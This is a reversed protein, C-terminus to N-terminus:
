KKVMEPYERKLAALKPLDMHSIYGDNPHKVAYHQHYDEAPYFQKLPTIETVIPKKFVHADNLEKIYAEATEKQAPTAYFIASRYQPGIDNEQRNKTTPDHAVSFFVKLLQGLSVKTPDYTVQVSEAHGTTGESVTEYHATAKNGGAYGAVASTVGTMNEFVLEIGWFCGGAVVLTDQPTGAPALRDNTPNPFASSAAGATLSLVLLFSLILNWRM